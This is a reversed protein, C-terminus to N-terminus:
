HSLQKSEALEMLHSLPAVADLFSRPWSTIKTRTEKSINSKLVRDLKPCKTQDVRPVPYPKRLSQRASNPIPVSYVTKLHSATTESVTALNSETDDWYGNPLYAEYNPDFELNDTPRDCRLASMAMPSTHGPLAEAVTTAKANGELKDLRQSIGDMMRLVRDEFSPATSNEAVNVPAPNQGSSELLQAIQEDSVGAGRLLEATEEYTPLNSINSLADMTPTSLSKPSELFM